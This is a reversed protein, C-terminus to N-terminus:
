EIPIESFRADIDVGERRRYWRIAYFAVAGLVFLGITAYISFPTNVGFNNDVAARYVVWGTFIAGGLGAVSIVPLGFVSMRITSAQYLERRMFPLLIGAVCVVLFVISQPLLASATTFLTTFCYAVLTLVALAATLGIAWVPSHHKDSVRGLQEPAMGDISWAFFARSAYIMTAAPLALSLVIFWVNILVTLLVNNAVISALLSFWVNPLPWQQPATIALFASTKLFDSGIAAEALFQLVAIVLGGIVVAGVIGILQGRRVNRVEGSFSVSTMALLLSLAPWVIFNATAPLSYGPTLDAGAATGDAIVKAYSGASTLADFNAQFSFVGVVGLLLVLVTIALSIVAAIVLWRQVTFYQKMGRYLVFAFVLVIPVSVAFLGAGSSITTSLSTLGPNNLQLGLAALFPAIAYIYVFAATQGTAFASLIAFAFSAVFGLAPHMTRSLFVYEGGSRPFVSSYMAYVIGVLGAGVISAVTALEMSAQPYFAWFAIIFFVFQVAVQILCYYLTDLTSVQRVLGSSARGFIGAPVPNAPTAM